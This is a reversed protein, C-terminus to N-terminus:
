KNQKKSENAIRRLYIKLMFNYYLIKIIKNNRPRIQVKNDDLIKVIDFIKKKINKDRNITFKASYSAFINAMRLSLSQKLYKNNIKSYLLLIIDLSKEFTKDDIRSSLSDSNNDHYITYFTKNVYMFKECLDLYMYSTYLDEFITSEIFMEDKLISKKLIKAGLGPRIVDNVENIKYKGPKIYDFGNIIERKDGVIDERDFFLVDINNESFYKVINMLVNEDTIWDDSDIFFLLDGSCKQFGYKRTLGPGSNEKKYAYIQPNNNSYNKIINYSNDISGDDVLILEYNDYKQCLVSKILKDIFKEANYVPVIISIKMSM